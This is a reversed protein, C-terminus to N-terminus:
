TSPELPIWPACWRQWTHSSIPIKPMKMRPSWVPQTLTFLCATPVPATRPTSPSMPPPSAGFMYNYIAEDTLTYSVADPNEDQDNGDPIFTSEFIKYLKYTDGITANTIIISGNEAAFATVSLSLVM